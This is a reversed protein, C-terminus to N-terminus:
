NQIKQWKLSNYHSCFEDPIIWYQQIQRKKQLRFEMQLHPSIFWTIAKKTRCIIQLNILFIGEQPFHASPFEEKSM